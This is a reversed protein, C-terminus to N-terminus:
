LMTKNLGLTQFQIPIVTSMSSNCRWIRGYFQMRPLPFDFCRLVGMGPVVRLVVGGGLGRRGAMVDGVGIRVLHVNM